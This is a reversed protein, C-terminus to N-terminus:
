CDTQAKLQVKNISLTIKDSVDGCIIDQLIDEDKKENLTRGSNVTM